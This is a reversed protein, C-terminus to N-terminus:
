RDILPNKSQLSSKGSAKPQCTEKLTITSRDTESPIRHISAAFAMGGRLRIIGPREKLSPQLVPLELFYWLQEHLSFRNAVPLISTQQEHPAQKKQFRKKRSFCAAIDNRYRNAAQQVPLCCPPFGDNHSQPAYEPGHIFVCFIDSAIFKQRGAIRIHKGNRSWRTECPAQTSNM